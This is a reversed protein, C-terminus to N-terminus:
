DENNLSVIQLCHQLDWVHFIFINNTTLNIRFTTMPMSKTLQNIRVAHLPDGSVAPMTDPLLLAKTEAQLLIEQDQPDVHIILPIHDPLNEARGYQALPLTNSIVIHVKGGIPYSDLKKRVGIELDYCIETSLNERLIKAVAMEASLDALAPPIVDEGTGLEYFKGATLLHEAERMYSSKLYSIVPHGNWFVYSQNKLINLPSRYGLFQTAYEKYGEAYRGSEFIQKGTRASLLNVRREQEIMFAEYEAPSDFSHLGEFLFNAHVLVNRHRRTLGRLAVEKATFEDSSLPRDKSFFMENFIVLCPNQRIKEGHIRQSLRAIKEINAFIGRFFTNPDQDRIQSAYREFLNRDTFNKLIETKVTDHKRKEVRENFTFIFDFIEKSKSEFVPTSMKPIPVGFAERLRIRFADIAEARRHRTSDSVFGQLTEKCRQKEDKFGLFDRFHTASVFSSTAEDITLEAIEVPNLRSEEKQLAEKTQIFWSAKQRILEASLTLIERTEGSFLSTLISFVIGEEEHTLAGYTATVTDRAVTIGYFPSTGKFANGFAEESTDSHSAFCNSVCSILFLLLPFYYKSIIKGM